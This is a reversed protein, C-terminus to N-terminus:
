VQLEERTKIWSKALESRVIDEPRFCITSFSKMASLVRLLDKVCSQGNKLDQQYKDDGCLILKSDRGTRTIVSDIESMTMNQIEDVIIVANDWTLGRVYSTTCFKVIGASKMDQYTSNRGLMDAFMDAYPLEYFAEKEELTGPMFGMDRTPVASRVIIIKDIDPSRFLENLALYVAVFSKGTGASGHACIHQGDFFAHFMDEQAITLPKTHRLDHKTWTKRKPGETMARGNDVLAESLNIIQARASQKRKRSM